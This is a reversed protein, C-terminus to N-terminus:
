DFYYIGRETILEDLKEDWEDEQFDEVQFSYGLGVRLAKSNKLYRDYFGKGYGTRFGRENVALFPVVAVETIGSFAQGRPEDIGFAGKKTQGYLVPVIYDGEVRPLCVTKGASLLAAIIQKTDAETGFSNYIFFSDYKGYASLFNEKILEDAYQRRVGQFYERKIKLKHRVEDKM